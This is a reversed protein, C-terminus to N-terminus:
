AEREPLFEQSWSREVPETVLDIPAIDDVGGGVKYKGAVVNEFEPKKDQEVAVTGLVSSRWAEGNLADYEVGVVFKVERQLDVLLASGETSSATLRVQVSVQEGMGIPLTVWSKSTVSPHDSVAVTVCANMATQETLNRLGVEVEFSVEAGSSHKEAVVLRVGYSARRDVAERILDEKFISPALYPRQEKRRHVLDKTREKSDHLLVALLGAFALGSFLANVAGFADGASGRGGLDGDGALLTPVILTVLLWLAIVVIAFWILPKLPEWRAAELVRKNSM